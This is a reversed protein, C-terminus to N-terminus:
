ASLGLLGACYARQEPDTPTGSVRMDNAQEQNVDVAARVRTKTPDTPTIELV